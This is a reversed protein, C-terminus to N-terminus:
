AVTLKLLKMIAHSLKGSDLLFNSDADQISIISCLLIIFKQFNLYEM